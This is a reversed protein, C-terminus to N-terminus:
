QDSQLCLFTEFRKDYPFKIEILRNSHAEKWRCNMVGDPSCALFHNSKCPTIGRCSIRFSGHKRREVVAYANLATPEKKEVLYLQKWYVWIFRQDM